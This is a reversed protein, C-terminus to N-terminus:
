SIEILFVIIFTITAGIFSPKINRNNRDRHFLFIVLVQVLYLVAQFGWRAIDAGGEKNNKMWITLLIFIVFVIGANLLMHLFEKVGNEDKEM